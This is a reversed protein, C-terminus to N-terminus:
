SFAAGSPAGRSATTRPASPSWRPSCRSPAEPLAVGAYSPL